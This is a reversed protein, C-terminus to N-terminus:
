RNRTLYPIRGETSAVHVETTYLATLAGAGPGSAAVAQPPTAYHRLDDVYIKGAGGVKGDCLGLTLPRVSQLGAGV